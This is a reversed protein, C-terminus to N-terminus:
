GRFTAFIVFIPVRRMAPLPTLHARPAHSSAAVASRNPEPARPWHTLFFLLAFGRAAQLWHNALTM